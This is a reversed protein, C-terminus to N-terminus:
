DDGEYWQFYQQRSTNSKEKNFNTSVVPQFLNDHQKKGDKWSTNNDPAQPLPPSEKLRSFSNRGIKSLPSPPPMPPAPIHDNYNRDNVIDRRMSALILSEPEKKEVVNVPKFMKNISFSSNLIEPSATLDSKSDTLRSERRRIQGMRVSLDRSIKLDAPSIEEEDIDSEHKDDSNNSLLSLDMVNNEYQTRNADGHSEINEENRISERGVLLDLIKSEQSNIVDEMEGILQDYVANEEELVAIRQLFEKSNQDHVKRMMDCKEKWDAILGEKEAILRSIQETQSKIIVSQADVKEALTRVGEELEAVYILQDEMDKSYMVLKQQLELAFNILDDRSLTHLIMSSM